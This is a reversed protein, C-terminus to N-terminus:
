KNPEIIVKMAGDKRNFFIDIAKHMEDLPFHHTIMRDVKIDGTSMMHLVENLVNPNARSGHITLQNMVITKTPILREDSSPMAVFADHGNKRLSYICQKLSADIGACEYARDVGLGGTIEKVQAVVDACKEYDIVIDAGMEKAIALRLGRGVMITKSGLVKAYQMCFNGMPGPGIVLTWGGKVIGALKIAQYATGATDALSAQSYTVNDPIRAISKINYAAYQAYGGNSTFGYHHHGTEPKNYNLCLNYNGSLCNVCTGCGCHAETAVRDGIHFKTVGPALEVIEGACEHGPIFPFFAPWMPMYGGNFVKPDSGCISVAHMKILVENNQLKPIPIIQTGYENITTMVCAKMTGEIIFV